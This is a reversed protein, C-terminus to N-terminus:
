LGPRPSREADLSGPAWPEVGLQRPRPTEIAVHGRPLRLWSLGGAAAVLRRPKINEEQCM